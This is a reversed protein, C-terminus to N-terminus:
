LICVLIPWCPLRLQSVLPQHCKHLLMNSQRRRQRCLCYSVECDRLLCRVAGLALTEGVNDAGGVDYDGGALQAVAVLAADGGRRIGLVRQVDSRSCVSLVSRRPDDTQLLLLWWLLVGCVQLELASFWLLRCDAILVLKCCIELLFTPEHQCVCARICAAQNRHPVARMMMIHHHKTHQHSAM